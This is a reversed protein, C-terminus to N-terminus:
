HSIRSDLSQGHDLYSPQPARPRSENVRLKRGHVAKNHLAKVAAEAESKEPMIVFGFGRSRRSQRDIILNVSSIEGYPEFLTKLEMESLSYPLNGVYINM